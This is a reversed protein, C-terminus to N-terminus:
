LPTAVISSGCVGQRELLACFEPLSAVAAAACCGVQAAIAPSREAAALATLRASIESRLQAPLCGGGSGAAELLTSLTELAAARVASVKAEETAALIGARSPLRTARSIVCQVPALSAPPQCPLSCPSCRKCGVM